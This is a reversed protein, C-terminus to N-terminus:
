AGAHKVGARWEAAGVGFDFYVRWTVGLTDVDAELGFYEVTPMTQGNLYCIEFCPAVAPNALLYFATASSGTLNSNELYQSVLPQGGFRGAYINTNSDLVKASTSSLGSAIVTSGLALLRRAIAEATTPVLLIEPELLMPDGDPGKLNRFALVAADLAPVTLAAGSLYNGHATTFHTTGAGTVNIATFTAKELSNRTKRAMTPATRAFAGLDDNIMDTRTVRLLAGRTKLVRTWSEDSVDMHELEGTPAVEELDGNIALSYVTHTHFNAHSATGCIRPAIWNPEAFVDALAKNAVAGLITAGISSGSFAARLFDNSGHEMPLVQGQRACLTELARSFSLSRLRDGDNVAQEGYTAILSRGANATGINHKLCLSAGVSAATLTVEAGRAVIVDPAKPRSARLDALEAQLQAKELTWNEAIAKAAIDPHKACAANIQGIRAAEARLELIGASADVTVPPATAEVKPPETKKSEEIPKLLGAAALSDYAAQLKTTEEPTVAGTDKGQAKLWQEFTPTM